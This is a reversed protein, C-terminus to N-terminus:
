QDRAAKGTANGPQGALLPARLRDFERPAVYQIIERGKPDVIIDIGRDAYLLHEAQDTGRLREGPPGFRQLLTTADLNASPVFAIATLPASLAAPLDDPHLSLRRTTSEMFQRKVSRQRMAEVERPELRAGLVLSGTVFGAQVRAVYAELTGAEGPAAVIAIELDSAFRARADALTGHGLGLGFVRSTGDTAVRVNWPLNADAETAPEGGGIFFPAVIAALVIAAITLFLKM